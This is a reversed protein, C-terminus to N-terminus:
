LECLIIRDGKKNLRLEELYPMQIAEPQESHWIPRDTMILYKSGSAKLNELAAECQEYPLHNLVWLCLLADAEPAVENVIDFEVVSPDRVILDYPVYDVDWEIHKVWNLDGAGIDAISDIGYKEVMRPIWERQKETNKLKSGAGCPTEKGGGVWGRKFKARDTIIDGM